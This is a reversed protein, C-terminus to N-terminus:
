RSQTIWANLSRSGWAYRRHRGFHVVPIPDLTRSPKSLEVVWSEKVKLKAALEAATLFEIQSLNDMRTVGEKSMSYNTATM